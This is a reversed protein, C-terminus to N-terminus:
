PRCMMVIVSPACGTRVHQNVVLSPMGNGCPSAATMKSALDDCVVRDLGVVRRRLSGYDGNLGVGECRGGAAPEKGSPKRVGTGLARPAGADPRCGFGEVITSTLAPPPRAKILEAKCRHGVAIFRQRRQRDGRSDSGAKPM